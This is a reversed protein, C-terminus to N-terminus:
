ETGVGALFEELSEIEGDKEDMRNEKRNMYRLIRMREM